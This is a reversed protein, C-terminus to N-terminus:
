CDSTFSIGTRKGHVIKWKRFIESSHERSSWKEHWFGLNRQCLVVKGFREKVHSQSNSMKIKMLIGNIHVLVNSKLLAYFIVVPIVWKAEATVIETQKKEKWVDMKICSCLRLNGEVRIETESCVNRLLSFDSPM